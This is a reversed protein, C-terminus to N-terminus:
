TSWGGERDRVMGKYYIDAVRANRREAEKKAANMKDKEAQLRQVEAQSERYAAILRLVDDADPWYLEDHRLRTECKSLEADTIADTIEPM